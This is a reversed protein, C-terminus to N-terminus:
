SEHFVELVACAEFALRPPLGSRKAALPPCKCQMSSRREFQRTTTFNACSGTALELM